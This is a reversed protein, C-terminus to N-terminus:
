ADPRPKFMGIEIWGVATAFVGRNDVMEDAGVSDVVRREVMIDSGVCDGIVALGNDDGKSSSAKSDGIRPCSSKGGTRGDGIDGEPLIKPSIGM